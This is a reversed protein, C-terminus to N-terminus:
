GEETLAWTLGLADALKDLEARIATLSVADPIELEARLVFLPTGSFAAHTLRSELSAVNVNRKALTESVRHVIGPQDAGSLELRRLLREPQPSRPETPKVTVRLGLGAELKPAVARELKDLADAGGSLLVILAFEGALVAMRSDELNCGAAFVVRSVDMVLGPRDGGVATLVVYRQSM